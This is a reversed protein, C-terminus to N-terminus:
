KVIPNKETKLMIIQEDLLVKTIKINELIITYLLTLNNEARIFIELDGIINDSVTIECQGMSNEGYFAELLGKYDNEMTQLKVFWCGDKLSISLFVFQLVIPINHRKILRVLIYKNLLRSIGELKDFLEIELSKSSM